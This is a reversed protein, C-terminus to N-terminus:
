KGIHFASCDLIREQGLREELGAGDGVSEGERTEAGNGVTRVVGTDQSLLSIPDKEQQLEKPQHCPPNILCCPGLGLGPDIRGAASQATLLRGRLTVWRAWSLVALLGAAVPRKANGIWPHVAPLYDLHLGLCPITDTDLHEAHRVRRRRIYKTLYRLKFVREWCGELWQIGFHKFTQPHALPPPHPFSPLHPHPFHLFSASSLFPPCLPRFFKLVFCVLRGSDWACASFFLQQLVLYQLFLRFITSM